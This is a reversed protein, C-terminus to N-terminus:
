RFGSNRLPKYKFLASVSEDNHIRRITEGYLEKVSVYQLIDGYEKMYDESRPITDTVYVKRIQSKRLKEEAKKGDKSSFIGHTGLARVETAGKDMVADGGSIITGCTDFMDDVFLVGRGKIDVASMIGAVEAENPKKRLKYTCGLPSDLIEAYRKARKLGGIDPSMVIIDEGFFGDEKLEPLFAPIGELVDSTIRFIAQIQPSHPDMLLVRDAYKEIDSAITKITTASRPKDKWDKRTFGLYTPVYTLRSVSADRLSSCAIMEETHRKSPEPYYPCIFFADTGRISETAYTDVENDAFREYVFEVHRAEAVKSVDKAFDKATENALIVLDRSM